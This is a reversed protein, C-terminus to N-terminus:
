LGVSADHWGKHRLLDIGAEAAAHLAATLNKPPDVLVQEHTEIVQAGRLSAHVLVAKVSHTGLDLGVIKQAM